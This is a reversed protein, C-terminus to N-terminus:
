LLNLAMEEGSKFKTRSVKSDDNWSASTIFLIEIIIAMHM